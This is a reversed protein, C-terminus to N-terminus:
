APLMGSCSGDPKKICSCSCFVERPDTDLLALAAEKTLNRAEGTLVVAPGHEELQRRLWARTVGMHMTRGPKTPASM